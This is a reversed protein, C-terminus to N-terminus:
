ESRLKPRKGKKLKLKPFVSIADAKAIEKEPVVSMSLLEKDINTLFQTPM